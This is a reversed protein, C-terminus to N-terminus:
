SVNWVSPLGFWLGPAYDPPLLTLDCCVPLDSIVWSAYLAFVLWIRLYASVCCRRPRSHYVFLAECLCPLFCVLSVVILLWTGPVKSTSFLVPFTSDHGGLSSPFQARTSLLRYPHQRSLSSMQMSFWLGSLLVSFFVWRFYCWVGILWSVGHWDFETWVPSFHPERSNVHFMKYVYFSCVCAASPHLLASESKNM